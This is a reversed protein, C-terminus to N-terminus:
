FMYCEKPSTDHETVSTTKEQCFSHICISPLMKQLFLVEHKVPTSNRFLTHISKLVLMDWSVVDPPSFFDVDFSLFSYVFMFKGSVGNRLTEDMERYLQPRNRQHDILSFWEILSVKTSLPAQFHVIDAVLLLALRQHVRFVGNESNSSQSVKLAADPFWVM